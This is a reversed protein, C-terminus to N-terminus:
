RLPFDTRVLPAVERGYAASRNVYALALKPDIGIAKTLDNIAGEYDRLSLYAQGRNVFAWAAREDHKVIDSCARVQVHLDKHQECDQRTDALACPAAVILPVCFLITKLM